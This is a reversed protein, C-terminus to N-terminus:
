NKTSTDEVTDGNVEKTHDVKTMGNKDTKITDKTVTKQKNFLGKPDKVHTTKITKKTAGDSDVSLKAKSDDKYTTGTTDTKEAHAKKTYGGDNDHDVKVSAEASNDAAFVPAAVTLAAISALLAYTTKMNPDEIISKGGTPAIATFQDM